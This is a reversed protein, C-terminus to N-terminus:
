KMMFNDVLPGCSGTTTGGVQIISFTTTPTFSYTVNLVTYPSGLVASDHSFPQQTGGTSGDTTASIFGTKAGQCSDDDTDQPLQSVQFTITYRRNAVLGSVKQSLTVGSRLYLAWSGTFPFSTSTFDMEFSSGASLYWPAILSSDTLGSCRINSNGGCYKTSNNEFGGNLILPPAGSVVTCTITAGADMGNMLPGSYTSYKGGVEGYSRAVPCQVTFNSTQTPLVVINALLSPDMYRCATGAGIVTSAECVRLVQPQSTSPIKCSFSLTAGPTCSDYPTRQKFECDRKPGFTQGSELCPSTLYGEGNPTLSFPVSVKNNNTTGPSTTCKKIEIDKSRHDSPWQYDTKHGSPVWMPNGSSDMNVNGECLWGLPNVNTGLTTNAPAWGTVDIWQCPLGINYNDSWGPSIGQYECSYYQTAM